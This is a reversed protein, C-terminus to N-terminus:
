VVSKRDTHMSKIEGHSPDIERLAGLGLLTDGDWAAFVEIGPARLATHDMAHASGAGTAARATTVHHDLLARVRPDELDGAMIRM